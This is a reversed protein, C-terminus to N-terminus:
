LIVKEDRLIRIEDRSYGLDLLIEETHQGLLPPPLTIRPPTKSLKVPNAVLKLKGARPHEVEWVMDNEYVHPDSYLEELDYVPACPVETSLISLWEERNKQKFREKLIEDLEQRNQVRNVSTEFKPNYILDERGLKKCLREWFAPNGIPAVFIYKEDKTEYSGYPFVRSVGSGFRGGKYGTGFYEAAEPSTLAMMAFLLSTEVYQGVGTRERYFLAVMIGQFAFMGGMFDALAPGAGLPPGGIEGILSMVGGMAQALGDFAPNYKYPGHRGFGTSSCYIIKPNVRAVDEYGLGLREAVGPRWNEVVVDATEILKLVIEKGRDKKLDLAVGKKNRSMDMFYCSEGGIFKDGYLRTFEGSLREIKIVEAGMDGLYCTAQPGNRGETFDIIRIGELPLPLPMRSSGIQAIM